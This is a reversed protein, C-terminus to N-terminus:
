PRVCLIGSLGAGTYGFGYSVGGYFGVEPGWYGEHFAYVGDNWGWYGPTWLLAPEPPLVWTGPVWYYGTVDDWAWYGPTWIYGPAPIPPQDYVPLPPPAVDVAIGSDQAYDPAPACYEPSVALWAGDPQPQYCADQYYRYGGPRPEGEAGIAAGTAGGIIAGIAAGRGGGLVGGIIAGTAGGVIAGGVPDQAAAEQMPM